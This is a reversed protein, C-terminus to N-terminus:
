EDEDQMPTADREAVARINRMLGEYKVRKVASKRFLERYEEVSLQQWQRNDMNMLRESPHFAEINTPEAFRNWPCATQCRDCGYISNGMKDVADASLAERNEILQYSLCRSADFPETRLVNTPCAELCRNCNGCRPSMPRDYDLRLNVFIEGLVFMSGARPIILQRNKGIWGLGAKVAWYRELVPATDCFERHILPSSAGDAIHNRHYEEVFAALLRLKEKVVDHYDRGYAYAAIQYSDARLRQAPAYNLATCVISRVEPMLLGPHLRKDIHDAMYAMGAHRRSSLWQRYAEAVTADVAEAQAIGCASFGLRLAEVKIDRSFKSRM